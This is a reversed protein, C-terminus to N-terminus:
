EEPSPSLPTALFNHSDIPKISYGLKVIREKSQDILAKIRPSAKQYDKGKAIEVILIPHYRQITEKAGEIVDDEFGEVDIKILSVKRFGFSDITRLEAKDGGHGIKTGGENGQSAPFM